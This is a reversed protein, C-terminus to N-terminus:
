WKEEEVEKWMFGNWRVAQRQELYAGLILYYKPDTLWTWHQEVAEEPTGAGSVCGSSLLSGERREVGVHNVYWDGIKRM